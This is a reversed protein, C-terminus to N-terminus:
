LEGRFAQHQLSAFLADFGALSSRLKSRHETVAAARDVFVQQLRITPLRLPMDKILAMNLGDMVAGKARKELYRRAIPHILFYAQLFGPLCRSRDLSICCLHKTNIALPIDDPVIACRGCTGMITILVDGPHVTYRELARYKATSIYRPKGWKFENDVANDIGLVAVGSSRFESHLLQSGFPGTRIAGRRADAVGAVTTDDSDYTSDNGFMDLFISHTLTDLYAITKRRKSLLAEARDLVDAIRRQDEFEPLPIEMDDLHENRLNNINAGAALASIRRRYDQTKFFHAFYGPHVSPGPRLVKCFAGFGGAYDELVPAAKGVVGLSGSSAAVVVDHRRLIQKNSVRAAPVFVLDEFVLGDRGINGARLVPLYGPLQIPSADTNDFTVGRIQEALEGVRAHEVKM